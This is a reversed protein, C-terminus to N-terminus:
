CVTKKVAPTPPPLWVKLRVIVVPVFCRSLYWSSPSSPLYVPLHIWPNAFAGSEKFGIKYM